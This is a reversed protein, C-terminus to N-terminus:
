LRDSRAQGRQPDQAGVRARFNFAVLVSHRSLL